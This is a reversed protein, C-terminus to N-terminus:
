ESFYADFITKAGPVAWTSGPPMAEMLVCLALKKGNQEAFGVFWSHANDGSNIEATGTKGYAQYLSSQLRTGTGYEVVDAMAEKLLEAETSEMLRGYASPGYEKVKAGSHNTIESVLYPKMLIGDNAVASAVMAMHLPSVQTKGQGIVTQMVDFESSNEDLVFRSGKYDFTVPLKSNFLLAKCTQGFLTRNLGTGMQIFSSNCSKAFSSFLDVEGHVTGNYCHVTHESLTISGDCSYRYNGYDQHERIYELFTFIKFTSGPTYLGNTARNLLSSNNKDETITNWVSDITNPDFDPKSVMAYIKGTEPDLAIVAGNNEGLASYAAQQLKVSLTTIVRNGEVKKSNFEKAVKEFINVDAGLLHYDCSLELGMKGHSSIGVVHAFLNGYPYVRKETGSEDTKTEALVNGDETLIIGRKVIKEFVEQRKNYTNNIVNQSVFIEFYAFYGIMLVFLGIFIYSLKMIQNNKNKGAKKM